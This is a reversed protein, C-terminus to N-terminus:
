LFRCDHRPSQFIQPFAGPTLCPCQLVFLAWPFVSACVCLYAHGGVHGRVTQMDDRGSHHALGERVLKEVVILKHVVITYQKGHPQQCVLSHHRHIEDSHPAGPLLANCTDLRITKDGLFISCTPSSHPLATTEAFLTELDDFRLTHLMM